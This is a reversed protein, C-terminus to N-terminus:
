LDKTEGRLAKLIKGRKQVNSLEASEAVVTDDICFIPNTRKCIEAGSQENELGTWMFSFNDSLDQCVIEKAPLDWVKVRNECYQTAKQEPVDKRGLLAKVKVLKEVSGLCLHCAVVGSRV